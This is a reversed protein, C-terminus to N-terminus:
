IQVIPEFDFSGFFPRYGASDTYVEVVEIEAQAQPEPATKQQRQWRRLRIIGDTALVVLVCFILVLM